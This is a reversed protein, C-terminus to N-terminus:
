ASRWSCASRRQRELVTMMMTNLLNVGAVTVIFALLITLVLNFIASVLRAMGIESWARVEYNDVLGSAQLASKLRPAAELNPGLILVETVEDPMELLKSAVKLPLHALRNAFRNAYDVIGVVKAGTDSVGKRYSVIQVDVGSKIGLRRALDAGLIVENADDASFYHGDVIRDNLRAVEREAEPEFAIAPAFEVIKRGFIQEDTLKDEPIGASDPVITSEDTYQVMVRFQIRGMVRRVGPVKELKERLENFGGLNYELPEFRSEREYDPHRLRVDGTQKAFEAVIHARLGALVAHGVLLMAVSVVVAFTTLVSRTPHRSINRWAYRLLM